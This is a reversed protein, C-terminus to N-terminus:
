GDPPPRPTVGLRRVGPPPDFAFDNPGSTRITWPGAHVLRHHHGCLLLMNELNTPGGDIWHEIHHAHCMLPPRTCGPFRCHRDRAVLAKWIAASALRMQRGVDLVESHTGLVIPISTPTAPWGAPPPPPSSSAPTPPPSGPASAPPRRLRHHGLGTPHRRPDRAADRREHRRRCLEVLADLMRAGHDRPDRGDHSCGPVDCTHPDCDAVSTPQPKSLPLLTSKILAADESSCRGKIFAGGALDDTVSFHRDLHAAREERELSRRPRATKETPISSRPWTGPPRACSPPTSDSPRTSCCRSAARGCSAIRPCRRRCCPRHCSGQRHLALRRGDVGRDPRLGTRRDAEALRVVAPGSGKHGGAVATVFDQTSAWGM